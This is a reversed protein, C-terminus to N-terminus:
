RKRFRHLIVSVPVPKGGRRGTILRDSMSLGKVLPPLMTGVVSSVVFNEKISVPIVFERALAGKTSFIHGGSVVM